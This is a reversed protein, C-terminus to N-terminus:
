GTISKQNRSKGIPEFLALIQADAVKTASWELDAMLAPPILDFQRIVMLFPRQGFRGM